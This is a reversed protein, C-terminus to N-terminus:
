GSTGLGVEAVLTAKRAVVAHVPGLGRCTQGHVDVHRAIAEASAWSCHGREVERELTRLVELPADWSLEHGVVQATTGMVSVVQVM